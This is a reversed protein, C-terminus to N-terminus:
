IYRNFIKNINITVIGFGYGLDELKAGISEVYQRVSSLREGYLVIVELEGSSDTNISSSLSLKGLLEKPINKVLNISNDITEIIIM